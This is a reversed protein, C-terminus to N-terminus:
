EKSSDITSRESTIKLERDLDTTNTTTVPIKFKKLLETFGTFGEKDYTECKKESKSLLEFGEQEVEETEEEAEKKTSKEEKKKEDKKKSKKDHKEEEDIEEDLEEEEMESLKESSDDEKKDEFGEINQHLLTIMIIALIVASVKDLMQYVVFIIVMWSLKGVSGNVSDILFAPTKYFLAALIALLVINAYKKM